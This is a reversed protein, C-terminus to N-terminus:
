YLPDNQPDGRSEFMWYFYNKTFTKTSDTLKYYGLCMLVTANHALMMHM